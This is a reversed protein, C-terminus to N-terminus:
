TFSYYEFFDKLFERGKEGELSASSALIQLQPSDPTLGLRMILLQMLYSVETGPSGRYLHLEDVVLHFVRHKKAEEREAKRFKDFTQHEM